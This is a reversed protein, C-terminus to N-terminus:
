AQPRSRASQELDGLRVLANTSPGLESLQALDDGNADNWTRTDSQLQLPNYRAPYGTTQGAMYKGFTAKLATRGNGRLDYSVGLRPAVDFWSPMGKAENFTREPAFVGAGINQDKIQAVFREFRVGLNLTMRSFTWADQVFMGLNANLYENARIPTNYLRVSDPAGNRYRQVMDGNIDYELVYDGFTWNFGTKLAHSGTVYLLM